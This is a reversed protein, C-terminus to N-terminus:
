WAEDGSRRNDAGTSADGSTGCLWTEAEVRVISGRLHDSGGRHRCYLEDVRSYCADLISLLIHRRLHRHLHM